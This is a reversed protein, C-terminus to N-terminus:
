FYFLGVLAVSSFLVYTSREAELPVFRTWWRKFGPRAMVSHQLAFVLLLAANVLVAQWLAIRPVADIGKPVIINGVFGITYCFTAFFLAYSAVGYALVLIRRFM